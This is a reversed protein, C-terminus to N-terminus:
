VSLLHSLCSLFNSPPPVECLGSRRSQAALPKFSALCVRPSVVIVNFHIVSRGHIPFHAFAAVIAFSLIFRSDIQPVSGNGNGVPARSSRGSKRLM